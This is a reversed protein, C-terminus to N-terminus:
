NQWTSIESTTRTARSDAATGPFTSSIYTRILLGQYYNHWVELKAKLEKEEKLRNVKVERRTTADNVPTLTFASPNAAYREYLKKDNDSLLDYQDLRTLYREYQDFARRLIAERNPSYSRQILDALFYDM